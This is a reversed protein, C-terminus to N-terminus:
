EKIESIPSFKDSVKVICASGDVIFVPNGSDSAPQTLGSLEDFEGVKYLKFDSPYENLVTGQARIGSTFIRVAAGDSVSFFPNQYSSTKDDFVAYCYLM